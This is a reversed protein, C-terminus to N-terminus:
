VHVRVRAGGLMSEFSLAGVPACARECAWSHMAKHAWGARGRAHGLSGWSGVVSCEGPASAWAGRDRAGGERAPGPGARAVAHGGRRDAGQRRGLAPPM